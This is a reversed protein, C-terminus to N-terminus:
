LDLYQSLSINLRKFIIFIYMRALYADQRDPITPYTDQRDPITLYADQKDSITLYTDKAISPYSTGVRYPMILM